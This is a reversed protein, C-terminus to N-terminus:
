NFKIAKAPSIKTIVYSPIVMMAVTILLTGVNLYLLHLVHLNIPVKDIYYTAEDLPILGFHQQLLCLAIGILNGWLLGKGILFGSQYLFIKRIRWSSYGLGKLLGIMNTRELILILLGSIMNFGAVLLMLGLIIWVNIDQLNLWDFIQPYRQMINTIKLKSGDETFHYGAVDFVSDTLAELNEYNDIQIEYGSIQNADWDNLKQLHRMDVIAFAKDFDEISTKYIGSVIFPRMRPPEQVFYVTLKDGVKLQLLNAIYESILIRNSKISDDMQFISGDVLSKEFFSWDFGNEIGKLVIAQINEKTKIIGSKTIYVQTHKVGKIQNLLENSVQKRNIPVTEFSNNSDFNTIQIHAGFGIVKNRVENKFGTVIAVSLIMVALGLSIGFVAINVIPGSIHKKDEGTGTIKKAIFLEANLDTDKQQVCIYLNDHCYNM